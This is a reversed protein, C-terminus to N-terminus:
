PEQMSVALAMGAHTDSPIVSFEGVSFAGGQGPQRAFPGTDPQALLEVVASSEFAFGQLLQGAGARSLRPVGGLRASASNPEHTTEGERASDFYLASVYGQAGQPRGQIEALWHRGKGVGSLLIRGDGVLYRQYAGNSRALERMVVDPSRPSSFSEVSLRQGNVSVQWPPDWHIDARCVSPVLPLALIALIGAVTKFGGARGQSKLM